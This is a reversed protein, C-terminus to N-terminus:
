GGKPCVHFAPNRHDCSVKLVRERSIKAAVIELFVIALGRYSARAFLAFCFSPLLAM